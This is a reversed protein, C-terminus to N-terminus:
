VYITGYHRRLIARIDLESTLTPLDLFNQDASRLSGAPEYQKMLSNLLRTPQMVSFSKYTICLLVLAHM